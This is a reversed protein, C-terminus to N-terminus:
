ANTVKLVESDRPPCKELKVGRLILCCFFFGLSNCINNYVLQVLPFDVALPIQQKERGKGERLPLRTGKKVPDLLSHLGLM